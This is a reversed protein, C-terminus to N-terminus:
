ELKKISWILPLAEKEITAYNRERDLLKRSIYIIPFKGDPFEQLLIAGVGEDSGDTLIFPKSFDPLRLFM